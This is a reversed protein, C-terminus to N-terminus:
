FIVKRVFSKNDFTVQVLYIGTPYKGVKIRNQAQSLSGNYVVKGAPTLISYRAEGIGEPLLIHLEQRDAGQIIQLDSASPLTENSTPNTYQIVPDIFLSTSFLAPAYRTAEIWHGQTSVWTTNKSSEGKPLNYVSFFVNQPAEEIQYGIFFNGDVEVPESFRIYSEQSRNLSKPTEQFTDDYSLKNCYAPQFLESHLLTEPQDDGSYVTVKVQLNKYGAGAPPTVFYAGYLRAPGVSRYAEAYANVGSSNNGFLPAGEENVSATEVAEAKGNERVNSLRICPSASYPDIGDCRQKGAGVPDLWHKLQGDPQDSAEWVKKLSYFYDNVPRNCTSEGGSLLGVVSSRNDFLPAGSSGDATCGTEWDEVYIHADERFTQLDTTMTQYSVSDENISFGKTGTKPHQICTYAPSGLDEINWGAYYLRYYVPPVELLELLMMDHAENVARFATSAVSLEEAGRIKPECLPSDYNFFSVITGAIQEYDPNQLTFNNNLCHSATLLYPKGDEATNNVLVGSCSVNGNIVILVVSRGITEYRDASDRRCALAPICSLYEKDEQPEIGRFDRYAHNVEGVTLRGRFQVHAPEQYEIILEEGQVPSTPLLQLDSNNLHNFAGLVQTQEPNYLFLQAGEPLEYESFLLNLSLAGKSRIGLRWVKTGDPLTFSIGSNDRNYDTMFKYAFRYGSRLDSENLSDIRLEEAVDFAPM